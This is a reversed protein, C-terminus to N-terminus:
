KLNFQAKQILKGNQFMANMNAFNFGDSDWQYMVTKIGGIESSSLEKGEKGLIEVVKTYVMGTEIRSYNAMTIGPVPSPKSVSSAPKSDKASIKSPETTTINTVSPRSVPNTNPASPAKVDAVKEPQYGGVIALVSFLIPLVIFGIVRSIINIPLGHKITKDWLPPLFILGWGAISLGILKGAGPTSFLSVFALLFCFSSLGWGIFVMFRRLV